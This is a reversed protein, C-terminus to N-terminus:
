ENQNCLNLNIEDKSDCIKGSSIPVVVVSEVNFGVSEFVYTKIGGKQPLELVLPTSSSFMRVGVLEKGSEIKFVKSDGSGRLSVSIGDIKVDQSTREIGVYTQDEGSNYCTYESAKDISIVGITEFCTDSAYEKVMPIIVGAIISIAAISLLILLITSIVQSQGKRSIIFNNKIM